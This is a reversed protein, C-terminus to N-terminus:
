LQRRQTSGAPLRSTARVEGLPSVSAAVNTMRQRIAPPGLASVANPPGREPDKATTPRAFAPPTARVISPTPEYSRPTLSRVFTVPHREEGRSRCMHELPFLGHRVPPSHQSFRHSLRAQHKVASTVSIGGAARVSPRRFALLRGACGIRICRSYIDTELPPVVQGRM